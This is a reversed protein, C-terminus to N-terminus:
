TDGTHGGAGSELATMSNIPAGTPIYSPVEIDNYPHYSKCCLRTQRLSRHLRPGIESARGEIETMEIGRHQQGCASVGPCASPVSESLRFESASGTTIMLLSRRQVYGQWNSGIARETCEPPHGATGCVPRTYTSPVKEPRSAVRPRARAAARGSSGIRRVALLPM